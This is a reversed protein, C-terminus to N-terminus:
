LRSRLETRRRWDASSMARSEVCAGFLVRRSPAFIRRADRKHYRLVAWQPLAGVGFFRGSPLRTNFSTSTAAGRRRFRLVPQVEHGRNTGDITLAFIESEHCGRAAVSDREACSDGLSVRTAAPVGRHM